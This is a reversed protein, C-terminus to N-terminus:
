LIYEPQLGKAYFTISNEGPPFERSGTRWEKQM